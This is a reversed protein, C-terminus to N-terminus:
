TWPHSPRRCSLHPDSVSIADLPPPTGDVGIAPPACCWAIAGPLVPLLSAGGNRTRYWDREATAPGILTKPRHAALVEIARLTRMYTQATAHDPNQPQSQEKNRRRTRASQHSLPLLTHKADRACLDRSIAHFLPFRLSLRPHLCNPHPLVTICQSSSRQLQLTSSPAYVIVTPPAPNPPDNQVCFLHCSCCQLVVVL